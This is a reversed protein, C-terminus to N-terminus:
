STRNGFQDRPPVPLLVMMARFESTEEDPVKAFQRFSLAPIFVIIETNRILEVRFRGDSDTEVIVPLTSITTPNGLEPDSIHHPLFHVETDALPREDAYFLQGYVLCTNEGLPAYPEAEEVVQFYTVDYTTVNDAEYDWKATWQGLEADTPVTWAALYVGTSPNTPTIPVTLQETGSPNKISSVEISTADIPNAHRDTLILKLEISDGRTHKPGEETVDARTDILFQQSLSLEGYDNGFVPKIRVQTIDSVEGEDIDSLMDWVFNLNAGSPSFPLETVGDHQPDDTKPTMTFEEGAFVGTLSCEYVALSAKNSWQEFGEYPIDVLYTGARQLPTGIRVHPKVPEFTISSSVKVRDDSGDRVELYVTHLGPNDNGGVGQLDWNPYSTAWTDWNTWTYGDNSLRMETAGTATMTLDVTLDPTTSAGGDIVLSVSTPPM